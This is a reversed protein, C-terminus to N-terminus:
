IKPYRALTVKVRVATSNSSETTINEVIWTGAINTYQNDSVYALGGLTPMDVNISPSNAYQFAVYTFTAIEKFDWYCKGVTTNGADLVDENNCTYSHERTQFLGNVGGISSDIGFNVGVGTYKAM